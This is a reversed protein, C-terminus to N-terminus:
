ATAESPGRHAASPRDAKRRKASNRNGREEIEAQLKAASADFRAELAPEIGRCVDVVRRSWKLYKDISKADFRKAPLGILEEINSTKDALKLRKVRPDALATHTVQRERRAKGKLGSPDTVEMVLDAIADGFDRRIDGETVDSDEVTDHLYAAAVLVPDFPELGACMVAVEALHNIYADRKDDRIQGDHAKAAVLVADAITQHEHATAMM